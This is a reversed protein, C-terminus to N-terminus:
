LGSPKLNRSQVMRRVQELDEPTDVGVTTYQTELVRIRIGGALARLQELQEAQELPSPPLSIFKRLTQPRYAYLGYHHYYAPRPSDPDRHYPIAHRSFYLAYGESDTVVKVVNPNAKDEEDKMRRMLTAMEVQPEKEFVEVLQDLAAPNMLPEDGQLNVVLDTQRNGLAEAVRESGSRCHSSTMVSHGGFIKVEQFIRADDTAVWVEQIRSASNAVRYVWEIMPYGGIDVLPKGPLRTSAYRAPIVCITHLTSM